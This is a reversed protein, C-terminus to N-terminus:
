DMKSKCRADQMEADNIMNCYAREHWNEVARHLQM